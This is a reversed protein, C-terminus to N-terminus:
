EKDPQMIERVGDEIADMRTNNDILTNLNKMEKSIVLCVPAANM